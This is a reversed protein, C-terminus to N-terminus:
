TAASGKAASDLISFYTRGGKSELRDLKTYKPVYVLRKSDREETKLWGDDGVKNVYSISAVEHRWHVATPWGSVIGINSRLTFPVARRLNDCRDIFFDDDRCDEHRPSQTSLPPSPLCFM